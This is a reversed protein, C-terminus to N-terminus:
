KECQLFVSTVKGVARTSSEIFTLDFYIIQVYLRIAVFCTASMYKARSDSCTMYSNFLIYNEDLQSELIYSIVSCPNFLINICFKMEIMAILHIMSNTNFLVRYVYCLYLVNKLVYNSLLFFYM